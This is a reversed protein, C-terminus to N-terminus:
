NIKLDNLTDHYNLRDRYCLIIEVKYCSDNMKKEIM